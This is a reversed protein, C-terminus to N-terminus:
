HKGNKTSRFDLIDPSKVPTDYFLNFLERLGFEDVVIALGNTNAIHKLQWRQIASLTGGYRKTEIGFFRGNYSGIFDPIGSTGYGGSQPMFYYAGFYTLISKVQDKVWAEKIIRDINVAEWVNDRKESVFRYVQPKM